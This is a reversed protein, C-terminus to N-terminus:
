PDRRLRYKGRGVREILEERAKVDGFADDFSQYSTNALQNVQRFSVEPPSHGDVGWMQKILRARHSSLLRSASFHPLKLRVGRLFQRPEPENQPTM